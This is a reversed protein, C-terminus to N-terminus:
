GDDDSGNDFRCFKEKEYYFGGKQNESQNKNEEGIEKTEDSPKRAKM